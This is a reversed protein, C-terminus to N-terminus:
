PAGSQGMQRALIAHLFDWAHLSGDACGIVVSSNDPPIALVDVSHARRPDVPVQKVPFVPGRESKRVDWVFVSGSRDGAVVFSGCKSFIACTVDVEDMTDDAKPKRRLSTLRHLRPGNGLGRSNWLTIGGFDSVQLLQTGASNFILEEVSAHSDEIDASETGIRLLSQRGFDIADDGFELGIWALGGSSLGLVVYEQRPDVAVCTIYERDDTERSADTEPLSVSPCDGPVALELEDTGAKKVL